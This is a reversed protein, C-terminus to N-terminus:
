LVKAAVFVLAIAVVMTVLSVARRRLFRRRLAELKPDTQPRTSLAAQQLILRPSLVLFRWLTLRGYRREFADIDEPPTPAGSDRLAREYDEHTAIAWNGVALSVGSLVVFCLLFMYFSFM